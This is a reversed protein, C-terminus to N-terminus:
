GGIQDFSGYMASVLAIAVFGVLGGVVIMLTPEFLATLRKIRHDLEAEPLTALLKACTANWLTEQYPRPDAFGPDAHERLRVAVESGSTRTALKERTLM